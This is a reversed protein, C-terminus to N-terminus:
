PASGKLKKAFFGDIRAWADTTAAAGYGKANAPNMFGHGEADYIKIDVDKKAAKLAAEFEKVDAPPIGRDTGGFNGLLAGKIGGIKAPDTVLRGYNIAAAALKPEAVALALAYGGGMCWGVAGIRTPDVDARAALLTFGAELDGLARDEPLGRMLEHAEGPDTTAKGRYLDVALTVYGQAALRDANQKIWDNMGWWEQIVVIAPHKGASSGAVSPALSLYGSGKGSTGPLEVTAGKFSSAAPAAASSIANASAAPATPSAAESQPGCGIAFFM